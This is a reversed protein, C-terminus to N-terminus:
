NFTASFMVNFSDSKMNEKYIITDDEGNSGRVYSVSLGLGWNESVWWEKGAQIAFAFGAVSSADYSYAGNGLTVSYQSVGISASVFLGEVAPIYATAGGGFFTLSFSKPSISGRLEGNSYSDIDDAFGVGLTTLHLALNKFPCGGIKLDFESSVGSSELRNDNSNRTEFNDEYSGHGFGLALNLFFGDHTHSEAMAMAAVALVATLIRKM